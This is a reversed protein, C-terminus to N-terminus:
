ENRLCRVSYGYFKEDPYMKASLGEYNLYLEYALHNETEYQTTSWFDGYFSFYQPSGDKFFGAPFASFGSANRDTYSYDGPTGSTNEKKWACGKALKGANSSGTETTNILTNFEAYSPVHWGKPCIGQVGSPTAGSSAAGAMAAYWNYLYGYSAADSQGSPLGYYAETASNQYSQTLTPAGTLNSAYATARVNEAMWCQNGIQVVAYGNGQQDYVKVIKGQSNTEELGGTSTKDYGSTHATGTCPNLTSEVLSVTSTAACGSSRRATVTYTGAQSYTHVTNAAPHDVDDSGDGWNLTGIVNAELLTVTLQDNCLSLTPPTGSSILTTTATQTLERDNANATCTVNLIGASTVTKSFTNGTSTTTGDDWTFTYNTYTFTGDTVTATYTITKSSEGCLNVTDNEPGTIVLECSAAPLVSSKLDNVEDKLQAINRNLSDFVAFLNATVDQMANEVIGRISDLCSCNNTTANRMAEEVASNVSEPNVNDAYMAYPVATFPTNHVIQTGDIEISSKVYANQWDINDWAGSVLTGNGILLSILGNANSTVSHSESFAPITATESNYISITVQLQTNVVLENASNRVVAQYSLKNNQAFIATACCLVIAIILLLKKGNQNNKLIKSLIHCFPVEIKVM